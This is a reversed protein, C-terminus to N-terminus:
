KSNKKGTSNVPPVATASSRTQYSGTYSCGASLAGCLGGRAGPFSTPTSTSAEDTDEPVVAAPQKAPLGASRVAGTPLAEM